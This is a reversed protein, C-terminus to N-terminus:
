RARCNLPFRFASTGFFRLSVSNTGNKSYGHFPPIANAYKYEAPSAGHEPVCEALQASWIVHRDADLIELSSLGTPSNLLPYYTDIWAYPVTLNAIGLTAAQSAETGADFIPEETAAVAISLENQILALLDKATRLDDGTGAM